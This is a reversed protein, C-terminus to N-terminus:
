SWRRKELIRTTLFIFIVVVSLFFVINSLSVIGVTFKQYPTTFSVSAIINSLFKWPVSQAITDIFSILLGVAIGAVAAVVQSETISSIFICISIVASGLLFLGLMNSLILSWQPETFTNIVLAYVLFILMSIIFIIIASLFKAVVIHTLRVPATLLIQDTKQRKEESFLRMTLVPTLLVVVTFMSSFVPSLDSSDSQLCAFFFFLGSFLMFVALFVYAIGSTFYSRLERKLIAGM